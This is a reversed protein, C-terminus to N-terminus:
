EQPPEIIEIFSKPPTWLEELLDLLSEWDISRLTGGSIGLYCEGLAESALEDLATSIQAYADKLIDIDGGILTMDINGTGENYEAEVQITFPLTSESEFSEVIPELFDGIGEALEEVKESDADESFELRFLTAAPGYLFLNDKWIDEFDSSHMQHPNGEADEYHVTYGLLWSMDVGLVKVPEVETVKVMPGDTLPVYVPGFVDVITGLQQINKVEFAQSFGWIPFGDYGEAFPFLEIKVEPEAPPEEDESNLIVNSSPIVDKQTQFDGLSITWGVRPAVVLGLGVVLALIVLLNRKM